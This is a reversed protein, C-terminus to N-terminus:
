ILKLLNEIQTLTLRQEPNKVLIGSIVRNVLDSFPYKIYNVEAINKFVEKKTEDQGHKFALKKSIMLHLLVGLSWIDVEKGYRSTLIEPAIWYATGVQKSLYETGIQTALGFDGLHPIIKGDVHELFVNAAKIDRHVYNNAHLYKVANVIPLFLNVAEVENFSWHKLYKNLDENYLNTVIYINSNNEYYEIYKIINPHSIKSLIKIETSICLEEYPGMKKSKDIVKVAVTETGKYAKYCISFSGTGISEGLQYEM